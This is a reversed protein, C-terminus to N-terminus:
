TLLLLRNDYIYPSTLPVLLYSWLILGLVFNVLIVIRQMMPYQSIEFFNPFGMHNCFIHAILPAFFHGTRLFLYTSYAGFVTTFSFQFLSVFLASMVPVGRSMQEFLHHFHAVGFFLPAIYVAKYPKLCQCLIPMMCSRFVWEESLPAMIHNRLWVLDQWCSLWYMPEAYLKFTGGFFQMTLPGLFLTATLFLPVTSALLMGSIRLGMHEYISAKELIKEDLLYYTFFPALLMMCIVSFFRKKITSPHDRNFKSRWIYLSAVYSITLIICSLGSILCSNHELGETYSM